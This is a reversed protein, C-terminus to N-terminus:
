VKISKTGQHENRLLDLVTKVPSFTSIPVEVFLTIWDSMSGNWLGPLELAQLKRGNKSKSSIFVAKPDRYRLLDFKRGRFDNTSCIIDVPNFHTASKAIQAQQADNLDIQSSEVIQLSVDGEKGAAWFPGGGAEGENKVMGCVRIPRYLKKWLFDALQESNNRLNNDICVNFLKCVEDAMENLRDLSLNAADLENLMQNVKEKTEILLGALARKYLISSAKFNDPVVNDINKIFIIDGSTENLNELLAGHGGPRFIMRGKDEFPKNNEDAAITDTTRKQMSFTVKYTVNFLQEYHSKVANFHENFAMLHEPSVTLHLNVEKNHTCYGAGEALHEEFPTRVKDENLHFLLLGKPLNGYNLGDPELLAKVIQKKEESSLHNINNINCSTVKLLNEFFAFQTIKEFFVNIKEEPLKGDLYEFLDKFMRTAAGSAPVFKTIAYKDQSQIYKNELQKIRDDILKIIGDGCTAPRYLKLYPTGKAFMDMQWQAQELSLGHEEIQGIEYDTFM